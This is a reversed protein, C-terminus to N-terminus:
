KGEPDEAEDSRIFTMWAFIGGLIFAVMIRLM